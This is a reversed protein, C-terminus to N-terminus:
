DEQASHYASTTTGSDSDSDHSEEDAQDSVNPIFDDADSITQVGTQGSGHRDSGGTFTDACLERTHEAIIKEFDRQLKIFTLYPKLPDRSSDLLSTISGPYRYYLGLSRAAPMMAAIKVRTAEALDRYVLASKEIDRKIPHSPSPQSCRLFARRLILIVHCSLTLTIEIMAQVYMQRKIATGDGYFLPGGGAPLTVLSLIVGSIEICEAMFLSIQRNKEAGLIDTIIKRVTAATVSPVGFSDVIAGCILDAVSM